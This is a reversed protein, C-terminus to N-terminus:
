SKKGNVPVIKYIIGPEEVAVYIYGDPGQKVNRVRGVDEMLREESLVKNGDLKVLALYEFRLAGVLLHGKWGSYLDGRVFDMGSPAISPTWEHLPQEMGAKATLNTFKTGSYNVGFSIVPWGYNLGKEVINIEDGGKPGHEHTWIEGTEPHKIMGQQNRHGYSYISKVADANDVFPNDEPIRGDDHIRHTKGPHTSLDQPHIDRRGRDGITIYLYGDNDFELRVGFHRGSDIYPLAEYILKEDTLNTGELKYRSVATSTLDDDEPKFSTYALYLLSNESFNPHLEVDMLGGQGDARIEPVGSIKTKNGSKAVRYFDGYKDTVLMDGGPLFAMGWPSEFGDVVTELKYSLDKARYTKSEEPSGLNYNNLKNSAHMIAVVMEKIKKDDFADNFSPMEGDERGEAISVYIEQASDGFLWERDAFSQISDEHCGSCYEEFTADSRAVINKLEDESFQNKASEQDTCSILLGSIFFALTIIKLYWKYKAPKNLFM